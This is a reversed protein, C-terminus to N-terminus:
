GEILKLKWSLMDTERCIQDYKSFFGKIAFKMKQATVLILVMRRELISSGHLSLGLFYRRTQRNTQQNM